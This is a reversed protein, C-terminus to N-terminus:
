TYMCIKVGGGGEGFKLNGKKLKFLRLKSLKQATSFINLHFNTLIFNAICHAPAKRGTVTLNHESELDKNDSCVTSHLKQRLCLFMMLAVSVVANSVRYYVVADVSVTVSDKTLVQM